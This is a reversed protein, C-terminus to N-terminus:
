ARVDVERISYSMVVLRNVLMAVFTGEARECRAWIQVGMERGFSVFKRDLRAECRHKPLCARSCPAGAGCQAQCIALGSLTLRVKPGVAAISEGYVDGAM